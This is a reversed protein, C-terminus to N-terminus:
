DDASAEPFVVRSDALRRFTRRESRIPWWDHLFIGMPKWMSVAGLVLASEHAVQAVTHDSSGILSDIVNFCTLAVLGILLSIRGERMLRSLRRAAQRERYAFHHHVASVIAEQGGVFQRDAVIVELTIPNGRDLQEAWEEIWDAAESDLARMELPSPDMPNFISDVSPVRM